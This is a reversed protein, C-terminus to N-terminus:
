AFVFEVLELGDVIIALVTQRRCVAFMGKQHLRQLGGRDNEGVQPFNLVETFFNRSRELDKVKLVLHGVRKIKFAM